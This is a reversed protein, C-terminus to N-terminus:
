INSSVVRLNQSRKFAEVVDVQGNRAPFGGVLVDEKLWRYTGLGAPVDKDNLIAALSADAALGLGSQFVSSIVAKLDFKQASRAFQMTNEFGGLAAPKLILATIGKAPHFAKPSTEKLTEDLALPLGTETHFKELFSNDSLPEEIYEIECNSVAKGFALAQELPWARNADLRLSVTAPLNKRIERVLATDQEISQRGVKLKVAKYGEDVLSRLQSYIEDPSGSLLGNISITRRYNPSLLACLPQGAVDALLNLAAMEIGYRVSPFLQYEGLWKEFAGNLQSLGPPLFQGTLVERLALFQAKAASLDEQHLGPLPAIEGWGFHNKEDQFKILLGNREALIRGVMALPKILPLNFRFIEFNTLKIFDKLIQM